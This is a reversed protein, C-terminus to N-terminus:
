PQRECRTYGDQHDRRDQVALKNFVKRNVDSLSFLENDEGFFATVTAKMATSASTVNVGAFAAM